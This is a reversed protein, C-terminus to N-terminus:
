RWTDPPQEDFPCAQVLVLQELVPPSSLRLLGELPNRRELLRPLRGPAAAVTELRKRYPETIHHGAKDRKKMGGFALTAILFLILALTSAPM